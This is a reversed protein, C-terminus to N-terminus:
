GGSGLHEVTRDSKGSVVEYLTGKCIGNAAQSRLRQRAWKSAATDGDFEGGDTGLWKGTAPSKWEIKYWGM